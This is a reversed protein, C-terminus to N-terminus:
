SFCAVLSDSPNEEVMIESGKLKEAVDLYVRAMEILKSVEVHPVDGQGSFGKALLDRRVIEKDLMVPSEGGNVLSEYSEKVWLRSSDPTHVEDMIYIKGSEDKGFEYKTDVLIWGKEAYIKQGLAFTKFAMDAIQNWEAQTCVGDKVLEEPTTDEDHEFAAAKSTPTIIPSSLPGYDKLGDPLTVGCFTREGKNYARMMSGAMYGRVIVEAKVPTLTKVKLVREHTQSIYHSPLIKNVEEFWFSSISALISGKYPVSAILRDFATLRDTHIISLENGKFLCQRVKGEYVEFNDTKLKSVEEKSLGPFSKQKLLEDPNASNEIKLLESRISVKSM